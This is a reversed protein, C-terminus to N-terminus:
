EGSDEQSVQASSRGTLQFRLGSRSASGSASGSGSGCGCGSDSGKRTWLGEEGLGSVQERVVDCRTTSREAKQQEEGSQGARSPEARNREARSEPSSGVARSTSCRVGVGGSVASSVSSVGRGVSRWRNRNRTARVQSFCADSGILGAWEGDSVVM